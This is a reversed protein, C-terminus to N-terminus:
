RSLDRQHHERGANVTDTAARVERPLDSRCVGVGVAFARDVVAGQLVHAMTLMRGTARM